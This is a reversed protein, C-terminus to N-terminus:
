EKSMEYGGLSPFNMDFNSAVVKFDVQKKAAKSKPGERRAKQLKYVLDSAKGGLKV